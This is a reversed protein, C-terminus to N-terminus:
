SVPITKKNTINLFGYNPLITAAFKNQKQRAAVVGDLIQRNLEAKEPVTAM